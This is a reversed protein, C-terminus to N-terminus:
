CYNKSSSGIPMPFNVMVYPYLSNVDYAYVLENEENTPIYMDVAGGTYSIKLRKYNDGYIMPITDKELYHSRFLRFALGPLLALLTNM